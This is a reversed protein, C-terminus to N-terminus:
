LFRARTMADRLRCPLLIVFEDGGWRAALDDARLQRKLRAAFLRLLEDGALHGHKDNVMKFHNLDILLLSFPVGAQIFEAARREFSGRNALGTLADRQAAQEVEDLRRRYAHMERELEAIIQQNEQRMEDVLATIRQIQVLIQQRLERLDERAAARELGSAVDLFRSEQRSSRRQLSGATEELLRVVERLEVTGALERAIFEHTTELASKLGARAEAFSQECPDEALRRRAPAVSPPRGGIKAACPELVHQEVGSLAELYSHLATRFLAHQFEARELSARLSIFDRTSM